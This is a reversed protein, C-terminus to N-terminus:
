SSENPKQSRKRETLENLHTLIEVKSKRTTLIDQVMDVFQSYTDEQSSSVLGDAESYVSQLYRAFIVDDQFSAIVASPSSLGHTRIALWIRTVPHDPDLKLLNELLRKESNLESWIQPSCLLGAVCHRVKLQNLLVHSTSDTENSEPEYNDITPDLPPPVYGDDYGMPQEPSVLEDINVEDPFAKSVQHALILRMSDQKVTKVLNIARDVYRAKAEISELDHGSQDLLQSVFYDAVHQSEDILKEFSEKGDARIVSDPDEGEPLFMFRISHESSLHQLTNDLARSAASRGAEDGDFCVVVEDTYWFMTRFHNPNPSTGLVAVAYDIGFQSLGVVDMYGEVLLLRKPRREIQLAEFLGYLERNKEFVPTQRSNIYKADDDGLTRGGFGVVNGQRNRIPFMLRNRFRDYVSNKESREVLLDAKILLKEDLHNLQDKLNTWGDPAYGIRYKTLSSRDLGREAVYRKILSEQQENRLQQVFLDSSAELVDFLEQQEKTPGRRTPGAPLPIGLYRAVETVAEPFRLANKEMLFNFVSGSKGCGFCHFSGDSRVYFSPKSDKHFPCIARYREGAKQLNVYQRLFTPGDLRQTLENLYERTFRGSYTEQSEAM